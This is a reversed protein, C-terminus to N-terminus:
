TRSNNKANKYVKSKYFLAYRQVSHDIEVHSNVSTLLIGRGRVKIIFDNTTSSNKLETTTGLPRWHFTSLPYFSGWVKLSMSEPKPHFIDVKHWLTRWVPMNVFAILSRPLQFITSCMCGLSQSISACDM